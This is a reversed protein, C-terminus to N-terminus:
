KLYKEAYRNLKAWDQAAFAKDIDACEDNSLCMKDPKRNQDLYHMFAIALLGKIRAYGTGCEMWDFTATAKRAGAKTFERQFEGSQIQNKLEVLDAIAKEDTESVSLILTIKARKM